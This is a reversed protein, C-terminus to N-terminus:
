GVVKHKIHIIKEALRGGILFEMLKYPMPWYRKYDSSLTRAEHFARVALDDYGFRLCRRGLWWFRKSLAAREDCTILGVISAKTMVLKELDHISRGESQFLYKSSIRGAGAHRRYGFALGPHYRFECGNAALRVHLNWEQGNKFRTDFGGVKLLQARRHLPTSILIDSFLCNIVDSEYKPENSIFKKGSTSIEYYDSFVIAQETENEAAKVQAQVIGPELVDDSDLFKIYKGSSYEIGKNRAVCAGSNKQTLLTVRGFFKEIVAKSRDTSGDDIAIIELNDYSQNVASSLAAYLHEEANFVPVIISVKPANLEGVAKDRCM